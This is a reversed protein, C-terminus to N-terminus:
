IMGSHLTPPSGIKRSSPSSRPLSAPGRIQSNRCVLFGPVFLHVLPLTLRRRAHPSFRPECPAFKVAPTRTLAFVRIASPFGAARKQHFARNKPALSAAKRCDLILPVNQSS